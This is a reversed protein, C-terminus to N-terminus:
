SWRLPLAKLAFSKSPFQIEPLYGPALEFEPIKKLWEDIVLALELRALHSGLCRHPGGGFGWHRHVKGDMVLEDTSIEDTGDRNIAALCLRVPSGPPLTMGGVNVFETTIRPAVPASPELRVIEEIFARIQKPKDRLMTRLQPRHALELLCFGVAATVTDLGALILLHSLGLVEIESLPDEGILVQSLVDPRPNRKREAIADVFYELLERQAAIDAESPFPKDSMGIVADKLAILRDRDQVSLGYLVLFLQFPFLKAFDAMAECEGLSAIADIMAVTHGRLTPLAKNLAAPSFYPQLIKRYRTHEPPDFALPLVPLPNGPPQLAERSSFAKTDRLASLVDERRTLYYWGNMFVVPGADRLTKWGAGRDTTMPLTSFELRPLHFTGRQGEGFTSM